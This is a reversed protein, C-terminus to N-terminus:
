SRYFVLVSIWIRSEPLMGGTIWEGNLNIALEAGRWGDSGEQVRTDRELRLAVENRRGGGTGTIIVNREPKYFATIVPHV